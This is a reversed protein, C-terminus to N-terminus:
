NLNEVLIRKNSSGDWKVSLGNERLISCIEEGNGSWALYVYGREKLDAADQRHYFVAKHEFEDPVDAWACTQCCWFNQRAFYGAKRLARFAKNLKSDSKM